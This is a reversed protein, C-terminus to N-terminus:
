VERMSSKLIKGEETGGQREGDMEAVMSKRWILEREDRVNM